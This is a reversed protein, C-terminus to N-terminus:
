QDQQWGQSLKDENAITAISTHDISNIDSDIVVTQKTITNSQNTPHHTVHQTYHNQRTTIGM